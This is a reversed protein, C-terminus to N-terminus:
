EDYSGDKPQLTGMAIRIIDIIWLIGFVGGTFLMLFGLGIYGLYFRHIGLGGLFIALILAILQSPRLESKSENKSEQKQTIKNVQNVVNSLKKESITNSKKVENQHKFTPQLKPMTLGSVSATLNQVPAEVTVNTSKSNLNQIQPSTNKEVVVVQNHKSPVFKLKNSSHIKEVSCSSLAFIGAVGLLFLKSLNKM